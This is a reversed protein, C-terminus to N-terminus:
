RNVELVLDAPGADICALRPVAVLDFGNANGFAWTALSTRRRIRGPLRIWVAHALTTIPEASPIVVRQGRTLAAVIEDIIGDEIGAQVREARQGTLTLRSSPWLTREESASWDGRLVTAFVFPNGGVWRYSWHGVFVAHFALAGPRGRDDCGQPFVGVIMWPRRPLRLAFLGEQEAIGTPTEGFRQAALRLADVWEPRCGTSRALV